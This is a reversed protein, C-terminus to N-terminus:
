PVFLVVPPCIEMASAPRPEATGSGVVHAMIIMPKPNTALLILDARRVFVPSNTVDQNTRAAASQSDVNTTLKAPAFRARRACGGTEEASTSLCRTACGNSPRLLAFRKRWTLSRRTKRVRTRPLPLLPKTSRNSVLSSKGCPRFPLTAASGGCRSLESHGRNACSPYPKTDTQGAVGWFRYVGAPKVRCPNGCEPGSPGFRLLVTGATRIPALARSPLRVCIDTSLYHRRSRHDHWNRPLAASHALPAVPIRPGCTVDRPQLCKCRFAEVSVRNCRLEPSRPIPYHCACHTFPNRQIRIPLRL